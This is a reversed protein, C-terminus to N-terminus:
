GSVPSAVEGSEDIAGGPPGISGPTGPAGSAGPGSAGDVTGTSGGGTAGSSGSSPDTGADPVQCAAPESANQPTEGSVPVPESSTM